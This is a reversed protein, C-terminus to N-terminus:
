NASASNREALDASIKDMTKNDLKYKILPLLSILIIVAPAINVIANIATTTYASQDQNAVYGVAVLLPAGIAGTIASSLKVGFSMMSFALGDDRIGLKWNGYEVCDCIFSYTISGAAGLFGIIFSLVIVVLTTVPAFFLAVMATASCINMWIFVTKKGFKKTLFPLPINGLMQSFSMLSFVVSILMYSKAVYILYYSLLAYRGIIAVCSLFTTLISICLQDNKLIGKISTGLSAKKKEGGAAQPEDVSVERCKWAAFWIMPLTVLSIILTGFFYGRGNAVENGSFHLIIPMLVAAVAIQGLQNAIQAISIINMKQQSDNTLRNVLGNVAVQVVTYFMGAGIYCIGCVVAKMTGELPFVTFTLVNFVALFPPGVILWPRFKGLRTHTRDEIIGMMPDNAADWIRALLMIISIASATLGVIDTYFVMLFNNIMYFSVNAGSSGISYAVTSLMSAKDNRTNTSNSMKERGKRLYKNLLIESRWFSEQKKRWIRM